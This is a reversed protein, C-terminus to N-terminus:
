DIAVQVRNIERASVPDDWTVVVEHGDIPATGGTLRESGRFVDVFIEQDFCEEAIGTIRAASSTAGNGEYRYSAITVGDKDCRLSGDQGAQIAGGEVNLAAAAGFVGAFVLGAAGFAAVYRMKSM